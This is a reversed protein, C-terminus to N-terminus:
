MEKLKSLLMKVCLHHDYSELQISVAELQHMVQPLFMSLAYEEDNYMKSEHTADEMLRNEKDLKEEFIEDESM